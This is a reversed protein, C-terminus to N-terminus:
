WLEMVREIVRHSVDEVAKAAAEDEAIAYPGSLFYTADGVLGSEHWLVKKTRTEYLVADLTISLRYEQIDDSDTYRLADRRYDLLKIELVSDARDQPTVELNGDFIFRNIVANTVDVELGPRYVKFRNKDSIETSIDITNKVPAVYVSRIREPFASKMTYGCGTMPMLFLVIVFLSLTRRMTKSKVM